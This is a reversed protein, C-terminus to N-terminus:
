RGGSFKLMHIPITPRQGHHLAAYTMTVYESYVIFYSCYSLTVMIQSGRPVSCNSRQVFFDYLLLGHFPKPIGKSIRRDETTTLEEAGDHRTARCQM